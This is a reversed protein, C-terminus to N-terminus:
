SVVKVRAITSAVSLSECLLDKMASSSMVSQSSFVELLNLGSFRECLETISVTYPCSFFSSLVKFCSALYAEVASRVEEYPTWVAVTNVKSGHLWSYVKRGITAQSVEEICGVNDPGLSSCLKFPQTDALRAIQATTQTGLRKIFPVGARKLLKACEQSMGKQCFLLGVNLALLEDVFSATGDCDETVIAVKISRVPNITQPLLLGEYILHSENCPWAVKLVKVRAEFDAAKGPIRTSLCIRVASHAFDRAFNAMEVSYGKPEPLVSYVSELSALSHKKHLLPWEEQLSDKLHSLRFSLKLPPENLKHTIFMLTLLAFELGFAGHISHFLGAQKLILKVLPSSNMDSLAELSEEPNSATDSGLLLSGGKVVHQVERLAKEFAEPQM